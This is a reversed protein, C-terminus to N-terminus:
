WFLHKHFFSFGRRVGSDSISVSRTKWSSVDPEVGEHLPPEHTARLALATAGELIFMFGKEDLYLRTFYM